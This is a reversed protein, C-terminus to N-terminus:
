NLGIMSVADETTEEDLTTMTGRGANNILLRIDPKEREM